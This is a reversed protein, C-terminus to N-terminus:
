RAWVTARSRKVDIVTLGGEYSFHHVGRIAPDWNPEVHAIEREAYQTTSLTLIEHIRLAYGYDRSCDQAPRYLRGNHAFIRGAPRARRVDSVIPNQAHPTWDRSFPDDAYFLFLEDWTSCGEGAALNTFLWWRGGHELLTADAPALEPLLTAHHEWRDPFEVARFVEVGRRGPSEPLLFCEGGLELTLPYSLHHPRELVTRAPGHNGREDITIVSVHAKGTRYVFEEVFVFWKGDRHIVHPDAWFRDRPPTIPRFRWFSTAPGEGLRVMLGWQDFKLRSAVKRRLGRAALRVLPGVLQRNTPQRYLPRSYFAPTRNEAAVAAQFAAGGLRHLRRLARPLFHLSKWLVNNLNQCVSLPDTASYSRYLVQGADLDESLVQLISGTTPHQEFVEWFGPPGGRNVRSDGHHFSWVGYRAATLVEGRLIRFGLRVLVDPGHARIAEVDEPSFYDSFKTRRPRVEVVPVGALLERVDAPALADPRGRKAFRRRDLKGYLVYLLSPWARRLRALWGRAPRPDDATNLVVLAIRAFDSGALIELMARTWAPVTFGDLLLGVRIRPNESM